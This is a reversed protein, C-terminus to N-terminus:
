GTSPAAKLWARFLIRGLAAGVGALILGALLAVGMRIPYPASRAGADFAVGSNGRQGTMPAVGAGPLVHGPDGPRGKPVVPQAGAAAATVTGPAPRSAPQGAPGTPQGPAPGTAPPPQAGGPLPAPSPAPQAVTILYSPGPLVTYSGQYRVTSVATWIVPDAGVVFTDTGITVHVPMLDPLAVHNEFGITDGRAVTLDRASSDNPTASGFVVLHDAASVSATPAVAAGAPPASLLTLGLAGTSTAAAVALAALRRPGVGAASM